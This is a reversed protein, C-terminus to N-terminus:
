KSYLAYHNKIILTYSVTLYLGDKGPAPSSIGSTLVQTHCCIPNANRCFSLLYGLTARARGTGVNRANLLSQFAQGPGARGGRPAFIHLRQRLQPQQTGQLLRGVRARHGWGGLRLVARPSLHSPVRWVFRSTRLTCLGQTARQDTQNM